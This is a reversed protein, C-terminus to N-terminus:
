NAGRGSRAEATARAPHVQAHARRHRPQSTAARVAPARVVVYLVAAGVILGGAVFSNSVGIFTGLSGLVMSGLPMLGMFVMTHVSMVRGRLHDPARTQMLTNAMGLFLMTTFGLLALVVLAVAFARQAGFLALLLSMSGAGALLVLGRRRVNGLSATALAGLLSGIGSAGFMWSLELAGVGFDHAVAPLLQIYPRSLLATLAVLVIVWRIVPERRIYGLGERISRLVAAERGGQVPVPAMFVLAVVVALYSLANLAFLGGIGAFLEPSGLGALLAGLPITLLGGIVPGFIQPGNFAASNLGIASMLDREPVLRPVMSQRTPADFSFILSNIAGLLLIQVIDIRGTITLAALIAATSAALVQTVILLRRRDARDAAVGGFLGFALGPIARALGVLGLYLPALQPVGDRIALQVVLYGQGFMQM